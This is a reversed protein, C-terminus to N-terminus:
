LERPQHVRLGELTKRARREDEDMEDIRRCRRSSLLMGTPAEYVCLWDARATGVERHVGPKPEEYSACSALAVVLAPLVRGIPRGFSPVAMSEATPMSLKRTCTISRASLTPGPLGAAWCALQAPM